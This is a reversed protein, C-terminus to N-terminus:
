INLIFEPVIILGPRRLIETRHSMQRQQFMLSPVEIILETNKSSCLHWQAWDRIQTKWLMGSCDGFSKDRRSPKDFLFPFTPSHGKKIQWGVMKVFVYASSIDSLSRHAHASPWMPSEGPDVAAAEVQLRSPSSELHSHFAVSPNTNALPWSLQWGWSLSERNSSPMLGIRVSFRNEERMEFPVNQISGWTCPHVPFM